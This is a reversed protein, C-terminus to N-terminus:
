RINSFYTIIPQFNNLSTNGSLDQIGDLFINDLMTLLQDNMNRISNRRFDANSDHSRDNINNQRNERNERNERDRHESQESHEFHESHESHQSTNITQEPNYNRIDYRCVPCKPSNNFWSRLSEKNFVHRCPIIITVQSNGTFNELSIPCSNNTPNNIEGFNM